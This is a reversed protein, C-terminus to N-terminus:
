DEHWYAELKLIYLFDLIFMTLIDFEYQRYCYDSEAKTVILCKDHRIDICFEGIWLFM